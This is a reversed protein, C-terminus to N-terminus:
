LHREMGHGFCGCEPCGNFWIGKGANSSLRNLGEILAARQDGEWMVDLCKGTWGSRIRLLGSAPDQTPKSWPWRM